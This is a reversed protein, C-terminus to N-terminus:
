GTASDVERVKANGDVLETVVVRKGVDIFGSEALGDVRAQGIRVTGV